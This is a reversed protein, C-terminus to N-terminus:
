HSDDCEADSGRLRISRQVNASNADVDATFSPADACQNPSIWQKRAALMNDHGAASDMLWCCSGAISLQWLRM